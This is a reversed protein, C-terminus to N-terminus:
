VRFFVEQDVLNRPTGWTMASIQKIIEVKEPTNVVPEAYPNHMNISFPRTPQGGVSLM